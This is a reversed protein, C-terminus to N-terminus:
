ISKQEKYGILNVLKQNCRPVFNGKYNFNMSQLCKVSIENKNERVHRKSNFGLNKLNSFHMMWVASKCYQHTTTKQMHWKHAHEGGLSICMSCVLSTEFCIMFM